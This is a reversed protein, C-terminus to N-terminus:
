FVVIISNIAEYTPSVAEFISENRRSSFRVYVYSQPGNIGCSFNPNMGKLFLDLRAGSSSTTLSIMCTEVDEAWTWFDKDDFRQSSWNRKRRPIEIRVSKSFNETKRLAWILTKRALLSAAGSCIIFGELAEMQEDTVPKNKVLEM